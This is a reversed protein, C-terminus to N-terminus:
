LVRRSIRSHGKGVAGRALSPDSVEDVPVVLYVPVARYPEHRGILAVLPALGSDEGLTMREILESAAGIRVAPSCVRSVPIRHAQHHQIRLFFSRFGSDPSM